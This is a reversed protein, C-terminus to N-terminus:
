VVEAEGDDNVLIKVQVNNVYDWGYVQIPLTDVQQGEAKAM